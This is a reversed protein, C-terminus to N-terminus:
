PTKLYDACPSQCVWKGNIFGIFGDNPNEGFFMHIKDNFISYITSCPSILLKQGSEKLQVLCTYGGEWKRSESLVYKSSDLSPILIGEHHWECLATANFGESLLDRCKAMRYEHSLWSTTAYATYITGITLASKLAGTLAHTAGIKWQHKKLEKAAIKFDSYGSWRKIMTSGSQIIAKSTNACRTWIRQASQIGESIAHGWDKSQVQRELLLVQNARQSLESHDKIFTQLHHIKKLLENREPVTLSSLSPLQLNIDRALQNFQAIVM